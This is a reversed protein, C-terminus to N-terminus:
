YNMRLSPNIKIYIEIYQSIIIGKSYDLLYIPIHSEAKCIDMIYVGVRNHNSIIFWFINFTEDLTVTNMM